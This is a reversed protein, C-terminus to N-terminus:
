YYKNFEDEEDEEEDEEEMEEHSKNQDAPINYPKKWGMIHTNEDM